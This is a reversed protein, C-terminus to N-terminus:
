RIKISPSAAPADPIKAGVGVSYISSDGAGAAAAALFASDTHVPKVPKVDKHLDIPAASAGAGGLKMAVGADADAGKAALADKAEVPTVTTGGAEKSTLPQVTTGKDATKDTNPKANGNEDFQRAKREIRQAHINELEEQMKKLFYDVTLNNRNEPTILAAWMEMLVAIFTAGTIGNNLSSWANIAKRYDMEGKKAELEQKARLLEREETDLQKLAEENKQKDTRNGAATPSFLIKSEKLLEEKKHIKAELESKKALGPDNLVKTAVDAFVPNNSLNNKEADLASIVNKMDAELSAATFSADDLNPPDKPDYFDRLYKNLQQKQIGTLHNLELAM